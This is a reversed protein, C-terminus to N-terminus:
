MQVATRVNGDVKVWKNQINISKKKKRAVIHIRAGGALVNFRSLPSAPCRHGQMLLLAVEGVSAAPSGAVSDVKM